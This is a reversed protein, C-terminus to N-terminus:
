IDKEQPRHLAHQVQGHETVARNGFYKRWVEAEVEHRKSALLLQLEKEEKETYLPHRGQLFVHVSWM